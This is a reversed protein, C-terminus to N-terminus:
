AVVEVDRGAAAGQVHELDLRFAFPRHRSALKQRAVPKGDAVAQSRSLAAMIAGARM